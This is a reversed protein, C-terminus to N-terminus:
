NIFELAKELAIGRSAKLLVNKSSIKESQLYESLAASNEFAQSSKNVNKFHKGVTIIEDFGSQKFAKRLVFVNGGRVWVLGFNKIFEKLEDPKGFYQRLDLEEPRLGLATLADIERQLRETRSEPTKADQSNMIIATRKNDGVLASLEDPANGLGYSSLFLRM